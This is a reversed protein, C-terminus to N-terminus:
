VRFIGDSGSGGCCLTIKPQTQALLLRLHGSARTKGIRSLADSSRL